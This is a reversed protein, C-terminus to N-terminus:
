PQSRLDRAQELLARADNFCLERSSAMDPGFSWGKAIRKAAFAELEADKQSNTKTNM